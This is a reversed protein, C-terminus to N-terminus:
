LFSLHLCLLRRSGVGEWWPQRSEQKLDATFGALPTLVAPLRSKMVIGVLFTHELGVLDKLRMGSKRIGFM